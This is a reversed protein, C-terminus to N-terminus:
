MVAARLEDSAQFGTEFKNLGSSRGDGGGHCLLFHMDAGWSQFAM